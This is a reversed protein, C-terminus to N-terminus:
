SRELFGDSKLVLKHNIKPRKPSRRPVRKAGLIPGFVSGLDPTLDLAGGGPADVRELVTELAGLVGWSRELVVGLAWFSGWSSWFHGWFVGLVVLFSGVLRALRCLSYVLCSLVLVFVLVLCSLSLSM